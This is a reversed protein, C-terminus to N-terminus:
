FFPCRVLYDPLGDGITSDAVCQCMTGCPSEGDLDALRISDRNWDSGSAIIGNNNGAPAYLGPLNNIWCVLRGTTADIHVYDAKGDQRGDTM